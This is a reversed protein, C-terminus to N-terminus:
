RNSPPGADPRTLQEAAEWATRFFTLFPGLAAEPDGKSRRAGPVSVHGVSALMGALAAVYNRDARDKRAPTMGRAAGATAEALKFIALFADRAPGPPLANASALLADEPLEPMPPTKPDTTSM